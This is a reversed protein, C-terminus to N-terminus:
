RPAAILPPATVLGAARVENVITGHERLEEALGTLRSLAHPYRAQGTVVTGTGQLRSVLGEAALAALADRVTNRSVGFERGLTDENPLVTYAGSLVQRRLVETVQRARDARLRRADSLVNPRVGPREDPAVSM